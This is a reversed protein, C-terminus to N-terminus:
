GNSKNEKDKKINKLREKACEICGDCAVLHETKGHIKCVAYIWNNKIAGM